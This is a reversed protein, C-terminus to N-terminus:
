DWVRTVNADPRTFVPSYIMTNKFHHLQAGLHTYTPYDVHCAEVDTDDDMSDYVSGMESIILETLDTGELSLGQVLHAIRTDTAPFTAKGVDPVSCTRYCLRSANKRHEYHPQHM